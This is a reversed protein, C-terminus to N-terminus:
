KAFSKSSREALDASPKEKLSVVPSKFASLKYKLEEAMSIINELEAIVNEKNEIDFKLIMFVEERQNLAM